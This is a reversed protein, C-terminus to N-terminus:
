VFGNLQMAYIDSVIAIFNNLPQSTAARANAYVISPFECQLRGSLPGGPQMLGQRHAKIARCRPYRITQGDVMFSGGRESREQRREAKTLMSPTGDIHQQSQIDPARCKKLLDTPQKVIALSREGLLVAMRCKSVDRARSECNRCSVLSLSLSLTEWRRYM